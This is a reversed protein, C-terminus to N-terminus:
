ASNCLLPDGHGGSLRPLPLRLSAVTQETNSLKCSPKFKLDLMGVYSWYPLIL